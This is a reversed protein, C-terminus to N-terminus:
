PETRQLGTQLFRRSRTSRSYGSEVLAPAIKHWTVHTEPHGHILLLPKGEGKTLVHTILDNAQVNQTGLVPLPHECLGAPQAPPLEAAPPPAPLPEGM